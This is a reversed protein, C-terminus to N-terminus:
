QCVREEKPTGGDGVENGPSSFEDAFRSVGRLVAHPVVASAEVASHVAASIGRRLAPPFTLAPLTVLRLSFRTLGTLGEAASEVAGGLQTPVPIREEWRDSM